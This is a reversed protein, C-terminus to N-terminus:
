LFNCWVMIGHCPKGSLTEPLTFPRTSILLTETVYEHNAYRKLQRLHKEASTFVKVEVAITGIMFDPRDKKTLAREREHEIFGDNLVKDFQDQLEREDRFSFRYRALLTRLRDIM